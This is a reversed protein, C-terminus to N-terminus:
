PAPSAERKSLNVTGIVCGSPTIAMSLPEPAMLACKVEGGKPTDAARHGAALERPQRRFQFTTV